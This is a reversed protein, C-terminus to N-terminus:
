DSSLGPVTVQPLIEQGSQVQWRKLTVDGGLRDVIMKNQKSTIARDVLMIAQDAIRGWEVLRSRGAHLVWLYDSHVARHEYSTFARHQPILKAGTFPLM